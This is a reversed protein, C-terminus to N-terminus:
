GEILPEGEDSAVKSEKHSSKAVKKTSFPMEVLPKMFTCSIAALVIFAMLLVVGALILTFPHYITRNADIFVHSNYVLMAQCALGLAGILGLVLIGNGNLISEEKSVICRLLAMGLPVFGVLCVTLICLMTPSGTYPILVMWFASCSLSLLVMTTDSAYLIRVLALAAIICAIGEFASLSWLYHRTMDYSLSLPPDQLYQSIVSSFLSGGLQTLFAALIIGSLYESRIAVLPHTLSHIAGKKSDLYYKKANLGQKWIVIEEFTPLMFYVMMFTMVALAFTAAFLYSLNPLCEPLYRTCFHGAGAGLHMMGEISVFLLSRAFKDTAAAAFVWFVLLAGQRDGFLINLLSSAFFHEVKASKLASITLLVLSQTALVVLVYLAAHEKKATGDLAFSLALITVISPALTSVGFIRSWHTTDESIKRLPLLSAGSSDAKLLCFTNNFDILCLKEMMMKMMLDSHITMIFSVVFVITVLCLVTRAFM